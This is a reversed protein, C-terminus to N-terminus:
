RGMDRPHQRDNGPIFRRICGVYALEARLGYRKLRLRVWVRDLLRPTKADTVGASEGAYSM